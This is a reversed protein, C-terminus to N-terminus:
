VEAESKLPPKIPEMNVADARREDSRERFRTTQVLFADALKSSALDLGADVEEHGAAGRTFAGCQGIPFACPDDLDQGVLRGSANRDEGAGTAVVGRLDNV